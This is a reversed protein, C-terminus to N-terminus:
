RDGVAVINTFGTGEATLIGRIDCVIVNANVSVRCLGRSVEVVIGLQFPTEDAMAQWQADDLSAQFTQQAAQEVGERRDQEDRPMIRRDAVIGDENPDLPQWDLRHKEQNVATNHRITKKQERTATLQDRQELKLKRKRKKKTKNAM